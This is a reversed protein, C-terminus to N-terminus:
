ATGSLINLIADIPSEMNSLIVKTKKRLEEKNPPSALLKKVRAIADQIKYENFLPIGTSAIYTLVD